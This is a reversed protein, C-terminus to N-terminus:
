SAAPASVPVGPDRPPASIALWGLLGAAAETKELVATVQGSLRAKTDADLPHSTIAFVPTSRTLGQSRLEALLGFASMDPLGLDLLIADPPEDLARRRADEGNTAEVIRASDGLVTRYAAQAEPDADVALVLIPEPSPRGRTVKALRALIEDRELPKVFYDAAVLALGLQQDEVVSVVLIPLSRTRRDLRLQQLVDWGDIGPLLIDLLIADPILNRAMDLGTEGDVAVAIAYGEPELWARLLAVSSPDDEVILVLRRGDRDAPGPAISGRMEPLVLTFTSGSGRTSELEISGGHAEALQRALALGLGTGDARRYGQSGQAFAEFVSAQEAPEIGPGEDTVALRVRGDRHQV